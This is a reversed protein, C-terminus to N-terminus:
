RYDAEAKRKMGHNTGDSTNFMRATTDGCPFRTEVPRLITGSGVGANINNQQYGMQAASVWHYHPGVVDNVFSSSNVQEVNGPAHLDENEIQEPLFATPLSSMAQESHFHQLNDVAIYANQGTLNIDFESCLNTNQEDLQKEFQSGCILEDNIERHWM